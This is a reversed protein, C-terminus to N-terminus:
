QAEKEIPEFHSIDLISGTRTEKFVARVRMGRKVEEAKIGGVIHVFNNDAGDLKILGFIIPPPYPLHCLEQRVITFSLLTGDGSLERWEGM